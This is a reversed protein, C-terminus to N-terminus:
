ASSPMRSLTADRPSPSTYLLCGIDRRNYFVYQEPFAYGVLESISSWGFNRLFYPSKNNVLDNLRQEIPAEGYILYEFVKRYHEIPHNPRGLANARALHMSQFAHLHEGIKQFDEWNAKRINEKKFFSQFFVYKSKVFSNNESYWKKAEKDFEKLYGKIYDLDVENIENSIGKLVKEKLRLIRDLM